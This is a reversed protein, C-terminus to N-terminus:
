SINVLCLKCGATLERQPPTQQESFLNGYGEINSDGIASIWYGYGATMNYLNSNEPENPRNVYWEDEIADYTWVAEIISSAGGLVETVTTNIPVTPISIFNWGTSIPISYHNATTFMWSANGTLLNGSIDVVNLLSVEYVTNSEFGDTPAFTIADILTEQAILLHNPNITSLVVFVGFRSRKLNLMSASLTVSKDSESIALDVYKKSGNIDKQNYLALAMAAYSNALESHFLPQNPKMNTARVLYNIAADPRQISNYGKGKAYLTDAYWYRCILFLFCSSLPRIYLHM